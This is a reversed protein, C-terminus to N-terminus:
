PRGDPARSEFPFDASISSASTTGQLAVSTQPLIATALLGATIGLLVDHSLKM